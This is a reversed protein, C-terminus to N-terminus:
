DDITGRVINNGLIGGGCLHLTPNSPMALLSGRRVGLWGGNRLSEARHEGRRYVPGVEM